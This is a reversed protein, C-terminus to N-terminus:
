CFARDREALAAKLGREAVFRDFERASESVRIQVFAELNYAVANRLGMLEFAHNIAAKNLRMAAVPISALRRAAEDAQKELEAAPVTCSTMGIREAAAADIANGTLLLDKTHRLGLIYPLILFTSASAHRIEPEAFRADDSAIVLDCAMAIDCALGLCYGHIAAVVPTASDWISFVLDIEERIRERWQEAIRPPQHPDGKIDVGASFARGSGRLVIARTTPDLNADVIASRLQRVLPDNFANLVQPRNLTLWRLPGRQEVLLENTTM